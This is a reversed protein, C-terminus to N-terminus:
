PFELHAISCGSPPRYLDCTAGNEKNRALSVCHMADDRAGRAHSVTGYHVCACRTSRLSRVSSASLVWGQCARTVLGSLEEPENADDDDHNSSSHSCCGATGMRRCWLRNGLYCWAEKRSVVSDTLSWALSSPDEKTGTPREDNIVSTQLHPIHKRPICIYDQRKSTHERAWFADALSATKKSEEALVFYSSRFRVVDLIREM